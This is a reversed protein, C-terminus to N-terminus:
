LLSRRERHNPKQFYFLLLFLLCCFGVRNLYKQQLKDVSSSSGFVRVIGKNQTQNLLINRMTTTLLLAFMMSCHRRLQLRSLRMQMKNGDSQFQGAPWCCCCFFPLSNSRSWLCLPSAAPISRPLSDWTESSSTSPCCLRWLAPTDFEFVLHAM